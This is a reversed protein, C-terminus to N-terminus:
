GNVMKFTVSVSITKEFHSRRPGAGNIVTAVRAKIFPSINEM